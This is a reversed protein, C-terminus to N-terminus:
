DENSNFSVMGSRGPQEYAQVVQHVLKHRVIDEQHLRSFGIDTIGSLRQVADRLGSTVGSPLDVQSIDGSVVVKSDEGMRTLFMKMQAITTNQAEDLIIFASNLTRGRMYALPIVEITGQEMLFKAQDFDVMEGIADLLPRLYPNLKAQLDGPLFGLNEGAEVAPRVLVIKRVSRNKLSEVAAAVALYTKGCGAPGVCFTMAHERITRLYAAQGDTRPRIRRNTNGLEVDGTNSSSTFDWTSPRAGQAQRTDVSESRDADSYGGIERLIDETGVHGVRQARDRLRELTETARRVSADEGTIKLEGNRHVIDVQFHGRLLRLNQDQPGFLQLAVNPNALNISAQSM